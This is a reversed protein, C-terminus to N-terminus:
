SPFVTVPQGTPVKTRPRRTIHFPSSVAGEVPSATLNPHSKVAGNCAQRYLWLTDRQRRAGGRRAAAPRPAPSHYQCPRGYRGARRSQDDGAISGDPSSRGGASQNSHRRSLFPKEQTSRLTSGRLDRERRARLRTTLRKEPRSAGPLDPIVVGYDSRETQPEIAIPYRM